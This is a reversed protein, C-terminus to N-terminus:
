CLKIKEVAMSFNRLRKRYIDWVGERYAVGNRESFLLFKLLFGGPKALPSIPDDPGTNLIICSLDRKLIETFWWYDRSENHRERDIGFGHFRIVWAELHLTPAIEPESENLFKEDCDILAKISSNTLKISTNVFYERPDSDFITAWHQFEPFFVSGTWGSWPWSPFGERRTPKANSHRSCRQLAQVFSKVNVVRLGETGINYSRELVFPIGWLHFVQNDELGLKLSQAIGTFANLTDSEYSLQRASFIGVHAAFLSIASSDTLFSYSDPGWGGLATDFVQLRLFSHFDSKDKSHLVDL